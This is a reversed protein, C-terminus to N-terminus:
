IPEILSSKVFKNNEDFELTTISAPAVEYIKVMTLPKNELFLRLVVIPHLHSICVVAEGKHKKCLKMTFQYMRQALQNLNEPIENSNPENLFSEYYNNTFLEELKYAQWQISNVETLQIAHNIKACPHYDAIINATEYARELPSTYIHKINKDKLYKAVKKAKEKGDKDLYYGPIRGPIIRSPNEYSAHRIFYFITSM